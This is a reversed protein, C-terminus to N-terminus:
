KDDDYPHCRSLRFRHPPYRHGRRLLCSGASARGTPKQHSVEPGFWLCRNEVASELVIEFCPKLIQYSFMIWAGNATVKLYLFQVLAFSIRTRVCARPNTPHFTLLSYWITNCQFDYWDLIVDFMKFPALHSRGIKNNHWAERLNYGLDWSCMLRLPAKFRLIFRFILLFRDGEGDHDAMGECSGNLLFWEVHEPVKIKTGNVYLKFLFFIHAM